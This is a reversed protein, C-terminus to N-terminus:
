RQDQEVLYVEQQPLSMALRNDKLFVDVIKMWLDSRAGFWDENRVWCISFMDVGAANAGTIFVTPIAPQELVRPDNRMIEIVISKTAELDSDNNVNLNMEIRRFPTDSYNKIKTAVILANPVFVMTGDFKRLTTHFTSIADVVGLEGSVEVTHGILFPLRPFIPMLFFVVVAGILVGALALPAITSVDIGIRKLVMLATIVFVLVYLTGFVVKVIRIRAIHPLLLKSALKHLVYILAVGCIIVFLSGIILDGYQSVQDVIEEAEQTLDALYEAGDPQNTDTM